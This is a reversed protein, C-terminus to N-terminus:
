VDRSSRAPGAQRWRRRPLMLLLAANPLPSEGKIFASYVYLYRLMLAIGAAFLVAVAVDPWRVWAVPRFLLLGVPPVMVLVAVLGLVRLGLRFGEGAELIDLEKRAESTQRFCVPVVVWAPGGSM